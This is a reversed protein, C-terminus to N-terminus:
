KTPHPPEEPRGRQSHMRRRGRGKGSRSKKVTSRTRARNQKTKTPNTMSPWSQRPTRTWTPGSSIKPGQTRNTDPDSHQEHSTHLNCFLSTNSTTHRHTIVILSYRWHHPPDTHDNGEDEEDDSGLVQARSPSGGGSLKRSKSGPDPAPQTPSPADSTEDDADGEAAALQAPEEAELTTDEFGMETDEAEANPQTAPLAQEKSAQIVAQAQRAKQAQEAQAQENRRAEETRRRMREQENEHQQQRARQQMPTLLKTPETPSSATAAPGVSVLDITVVEPHLINPIIPQGQAKNLMQQVKASRMPGTAHELGQVLMPKTPNYQSFVRIGAGDEPIQLEKFMASVLAPVSMVGRDGEYENQGQLGYHLEDYPEQAEGRKDLLVFLVGPRAAARIRELEQQSEESGWTQEIAKEAARAVQQNTSAKVVIEAQATAETNSARIIELFHNIQSAQMERGTILMAEEQAANEMRGELAMVLEGSADMKCDYEGDSLGFQLEAVQPNFEENFKVLEENCKRGVAMQQIVLGNKLCKFAAPSYVWIKYTTYHVGTALGVVKEMDVRKIESIDDGTEALAFMLSELTSYKRPHPWAVTVFGQAEKNKAHRKRNGLQISGLQINKGSHSNYVEFIHTWMAHVMCATPGNPDVLHNNYLVIVNNMDHNKDKFVRREGRVQKITTQEGDMRALGIPHTTGDDGRGTGVVLRSLPIKVDEPLAVPQLDNGFGAVGQAQLIAAAGAECEAPYKAMTDELITLANSRVPDTTLAMIPRVNGFPKGTVPDMGELNPYIVQIFMLAIKDPLRREATGIDPAAPDTGQKPVYTENGTMDGWRADVNGIRTWGRSQSYSAAGRVQQITAVHTQTLDDEDLEDDRETNAIRLAQDLEITVTILTSYRAEHHVSHIEYPAIERNIHEEYLEFVKAKREDGQVKAWMMVRDTGDMQVIMGAGLRLGANLDMMKQPAEGYVPGFLRAPQLKLTSNRIPTRPRPHDHPMRALSPRDTMEHRDGSGGVQRNTPSFWSRTKMVQNPAEANEM